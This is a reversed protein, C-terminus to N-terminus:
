NVSFAVCLSYLSVVELLATLRNSNSVFSAAHVTLAHPTRQQDACVTLVLLSGKSQILLGTAQHLLFM